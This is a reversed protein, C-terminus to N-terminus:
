ASLDRYLVGGFRQQLQPSREVATAAILWVVALLEDRRLNDALLSHSFQLLANEDTGDEGADLSMVGFHFRGGELAVLRLLEANLPVDIVLPAFVEAKLHGGQIISTEIQIVSPGIDPITIWGNSGVHVDRYSESLWSLVNSRLDALRPPVPLQSQDRHGDPATATASAPVPASTPLPAPQPARQAQAPQPQAPEPADPKPQAPPAAPQRAVPRAPSPLGVGAQPGPIPRPRPRPQETTAASAAGTPAPTASPAPTPRASEVTAPMPPQQHQEESTSEEPTTQEPTTQEPTSEKSTSQESAPEEHEDPQYGHPPEGGTGPRTAPPFSSEDRLPGHPAPPAYENLQQPGSAPATYNTLAPPAIEPAAYNTLPAPGSPPPAYNTLANPGSLHEPSSVGGLAAGPSAGSAGAHVMERQGSLGVVWPETLGNRAAYSKAFEVSRSPVFDHPAEAASRYVLPEYQAQTEQDAAVELLENGAWCRTGYYISAPMVAQSSASWIDAPVPPPTLSCLAGFLDALFAAAQARDFGPSERWIRYGDTLFDGAQHEHLGAVQCLAWGTALMGKGDRKGVCEIGHQYLAAPDTSRIPTTRWFPQPTRNRLGM